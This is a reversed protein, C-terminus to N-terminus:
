WDDCGQGSDSISWAENRLGQRGGVWAGKFTLGVSDPVIRRDARM